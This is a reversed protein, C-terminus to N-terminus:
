WISGFNIRGIINRAVAGLTWLLRVATSKPVSMSTLITANYSQWGDLPEARGAPLGCAFSVNRIWYKPIGPDQKAYDAGLFLPYVLKKRRSRPEKAEIIRCGSVPDPVTSASAYSSLGTPDLAGSSYASSPGTYAGIVGGNFLAETRCLDDDAPIATDTDPM